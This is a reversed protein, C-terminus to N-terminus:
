TDSMGTTPSQLAGGRTTASTAFEEVRSWPTAGYNPFGESPLNGNYNGLWKNLQEDMDSSNGHRGIKKVQETAACNFRELCGNGRLVRARHQTFAINQEELYPVYVNAAEEYNGWSNRWYDRWRRTAISHITMGQQRYFEVVFNILRKASREVKEPADSALLAWGM